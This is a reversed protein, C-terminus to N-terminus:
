DAGVSCNNCGDTYNKCQGLNVGNVVVDQAANVSSVASFVAATAAFAWLLISRKM